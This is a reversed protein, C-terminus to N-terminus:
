FFPNPMMISLEGGLSIFHYPALALGVSTSPLPKVLSFDQEVVDKTVDLM